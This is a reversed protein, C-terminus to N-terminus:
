ISPLWSSSFINADSRLGARYDQGDPRFVRSRSGHCSRAYRTSVLGIRTSNVGPPAQTPRPKLATRM